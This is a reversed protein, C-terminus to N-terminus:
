AKSFFVLLKLGQPFDAFRHKKNKELFLISGPHVEQRLEGGQSECIFVGEGELVYYVEDEAHPTQTDTGGAPLEYIGCFLSPVNLFEQWGDKDFAPRDSLLKKLDFFQPSM